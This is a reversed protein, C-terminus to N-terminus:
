ATLGKWAVRLRGLSKEHGSEDVFGDVFLFWVGLACRGVLGGGGGYRPGEAFGDRLTLTQSRAGLVDIVMIEGRQCKPALLVISDDESLDLRVPKGVYPLKLLRPPRHTHGLDTEQICLWESNYLLIHFRTIAIHFSSANNTLCTPVSINKLIAGSRVSVLLLAPGTQISQTRILAFTENLTVEQICQDSPLHCEWVAQVHNQTLSLSRQCNSPELLRYLRCSHVKRPDDGIPVLLSNGCLMAGQLADTLIWLGNGFYSERESSFFWPGNPRIRSGNTGVGFSM